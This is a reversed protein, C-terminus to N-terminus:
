DRRGERVLARVDVPGEIRDRFARLRRLLTRRDSGVAESLVPVIRAVPKGRRTITVVDGREARAVLRSLHTKADFISVERAGM